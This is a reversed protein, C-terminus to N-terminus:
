RSGGGYLASALLRDRLGVPVMALNRMKRAGPAVVDHARPRPSSLIDGIRRAVVDAKVAPLDRVRQDFFEVLPRYLEATAPDAAAFIRDRQAALKGLARTEVKGVALCTVRVGFPRLEVRLADSAAEVAAKSAAYVSTDPTALLGHGSSVNVIRGRGARLLPLLERTVDLLGVVNVGMVGRISDTPTLELPAKLSVGANNVLGFLRGGTADAIAAAAGAVTWDDTVDLILPTLRDSGPDRLEEADSERRVGAFVEFGRGVLHLATARGIGSSAGTVLVAKRQPTM